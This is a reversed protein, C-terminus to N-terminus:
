SSVSLTLISLGHPYTSHSNSTFTSTALLIIRQIRQSDILSSTESPFPIAQEYFGLRCQDIQNMCKHIRITLHVQTSTSHNIQFSFFFKDRRITFFIFTIHYKNIKKNKKKKYSKFHQNFKNKTITTQLNHFRPIINSYIHKTHTIVYLCQIFIYIYM